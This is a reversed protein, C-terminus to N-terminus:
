IYSEDPLYKEIAYAVIVAIFCDSMYHWNAFVLQWAMAFTLFNRWKTKYLVLYSIATHGSPLMDACNRFDWFSVDLCAEVGGPQPTITIFQTIGKLVFCLAIRKALLNYNPRSVLMFFFYIAILVIIMDEAWESYLYVVDHHTPNELAMQNTLFSLGFYMPLVILLYYIGHIKYM